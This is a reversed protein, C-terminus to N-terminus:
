INDSKIKKNNYNRTWKETTEQSNILQRYKSPTMNYKEKFINIFSKVNSFGSSIAIDQINNDSNILEEYAKSFRINALYVKYTVGFWKHFKRSFYESSMYFDKSIKELSLEERYNESIYILIEKQKDKYKFCNELNSDDEEVTFDSLLIYLIEYLYSNIKIYDLEKPKLYIDKIELFIDVLRKKSNSKKYIDFRINDINPYVSKIFDYSLVLIIGSGTKGQKKEIEHVDGSNVFIFEGSNVKIKKGNIFGEVEGELLFTIEISRHWHPEIYLDSKTNTNEEGLYGLLAPINPNLNVKEYTVGDM